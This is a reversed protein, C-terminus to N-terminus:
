KKPLEKPSNTIQTKKGFMKYFLYIMSLGICTWTWLHITSYGSIDPTPITFQHTNSHIMDVFFKDDNSLIFNDLLSGYNKKIFPNGKNEFDLPCKQFVYSEFEYNEPISTLQTKNTPNTYRKHLNFRFTTNSSNQDMHLKILNLTKGNEPMQYDPKELDFDGVQAILELHSQSQQPISEFESDFKNLFIQNPLDLYLYYDCKQQKATDYVGENVPTLQKAFRNEYKEANITFQPHLGNNADFEPEQVIYDMTDLLHQKKNTLSHHQHSFNDSLRKHDTFLQSYWFSTKNCQLKTKNNKNKNEKCTLGSFNILNWLKESDIYFFGIDDFQSEDIQFRELLPPKNQLSYYENIEVKRVVKNTSLEDLHQQQQQQEQILIDYNKDEAFEMDIDYEKLINHLLPYNNFSASTYEENKNNIDHVQYEYINLGKSLFPEILYRKVKDPTNKQLTIRYNKLIKKGEEPLIEVNVLTTKNQVFIENGGDIINEKNIIVNGDDKIDVLEEDQNYLDGKSNFLLTLRGSRKQM